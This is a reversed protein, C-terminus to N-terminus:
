YNKLDPDKKQLIKIPKRKKKILIYTQCLNVAIYFAYSLLPFPQASEGLRQGVKVDGVRYTKKKRNSIFAGM